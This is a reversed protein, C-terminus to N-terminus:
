VEPEVPLLDDEVCEPFRHLRGGAHAECIAPRPGQVQAEEEPTKQYEAPNWSFHYTRCCGQCTYCKRSKHSKYHETLLSIWAFAEKCESCTYPKGRCAGPEDVVPLGPASPGPDQSSVFGASRGAGSPKKRMGYQQHNSVSSVCEPGEEDGEEPHPRKTGPGQLPTEPRATGWDQAPKRIVSQRQAGTVPSLEGDLADSVKWPLQEEEEQTTGSSPDVPLDGGLRQMDGQSGWPRGHGLLSGGPLEGELLAPEETELGSTADPQSLQYGWLLLKRYSKLNEESPDLHGWEGMHPSEEPFAKPKLEARAASAVEAREERSSGQELLVPHVAPWPTEPSALVEVPGPDGNPSAPGGPLLLREYVGENLPSSARGPSYLLMGPEELVDALGEVLSAAKRCSEPYQAVVWPRVRDPLIGLFQELVLLELIQEKSCAEPRLWQRCLEHLHALTQHPGAAEQYVFERFRLRSFELDAATREPINVPGERRVRAASGGIPLEPRSPSNRPSAFARELPLM